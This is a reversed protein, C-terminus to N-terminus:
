RLSPRQLTFPTRRLKGRMQVGAPKKLVQLGAPKKRVVTGGAPKKLVLYQTKSTQRASMGQAVLRGSLDERARFLPLDARVGDLCWNLWDPETFQVARLALALVQDHGVQRLTPSYLAANHALLKGMHGVSLHLQLTTPFQEPSNKWWRNLEAHLSENSTTGAPLLTM